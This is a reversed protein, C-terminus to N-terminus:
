MQVAEALPRPQLPPEVDCPSRSALHLQPRRCCTAKYLLFHQYYTKLVFDLAATAQVPNLMGRAHPPREVSLRLLAEQFFALSELAGRQWGLADAELVRQLVGLLARVQQCSFQNRYAARACETLLAALRQRAAPTVDLDGLLEALLSSRQAPFLPSNFPLPRRAPPFAARRV